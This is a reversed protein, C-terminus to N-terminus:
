LQNITQTLKFELKKQLARTKGAKMLYLLNKHKFYREFIQVGDNYDMGNKQWFFLDFVKDTPQNTEYKSKEPFHKVMWWKFANNLGRDNYGVFPINKIREILEESAYHKYITVKEGSLPFAPLKMFNGYLSRFTYGIDEQYNFQEMVKPFEHKNLLMPAHYDYQITSLGKQQLIKFTRHLRFRYLEKKWFKEPRDKMDGKHLWPIESATMSQNIIFDDNMLLFDDSLNKERCARLIKLTMNGDANIGGLPDPYDIHIVKGTFFGPNDGVVYIKGVGKLNKEVSRLSIRIENNNWASGSGLVYVLDTKQQKMIKSFINRIIQEKWIATIIFFM